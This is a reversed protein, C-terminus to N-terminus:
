ENTIQLCLERTPSLILGQTARVDPDLKQLLPLGFAATKGTGTQALGILDTDNEILVPIAKEQIESAQEFGMETVAQILEPNLGLERFNKMFIILGAFILCEFPKVNNNVFSKHSI